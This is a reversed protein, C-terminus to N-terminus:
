KALLWTTPQLTTTPQNTPPSGEFHCVNILFLCLLIQLLGKRAPYNPQILWAAILKWGRIVPELDQSSHYLTQSVPIHDFISDIM